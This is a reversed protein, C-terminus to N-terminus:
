ITREKEIYVSIGLLNVINNKLHKKYYKLKNRTKISLSSYIRNKYARGLGFDSDNGFWIKNLVAKIIPIGRKIVKGTSNSSCDVIICENGIALSYLLNDPLLYFFNDFSHSELHSSQIRIIEGNYINQYLGASLNIFYNM